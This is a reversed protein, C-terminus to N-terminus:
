NPVSCVLCTFLLWYNITFGARSCICFTMVCKDLMVGSIQLSISICRSCTLTIGDKEVCHRHRESGQSWIRERRLQSPQILKVAWPESTLGPSIDWYFCICAGKFGHHGSHTPKIKREQIGTSSLFTPCTGCPHPQDWRSNIHTTNVHVNSHCVRSISIAFKSRAM